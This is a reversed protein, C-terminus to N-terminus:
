HRSERRQARRDIGLSVGLVTALGVGAGGLTDTAYHVHAAVRAAAVTSAVGLAAVSTLVAVTLPLRPPQRDLVLLSIIFAVTFIATTHGSPFAYNGLLTRDVLPKLLWETIAASLPIAIAALLAARPRRLAVLSAVLVLATIAIPEPDALQTLHQLLSRDYTFSRPLRRGLNNDIRGARTSDAFHLSLVAVLMVAVGLTLGAPRRLAAPILPRSLAMGTM